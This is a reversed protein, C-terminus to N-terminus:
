RIGRPTGGVATAAARGGPDDFFELVREWEQEGLKLPPMVAQHRSARPNAIWQKLNSPMWPENVKFVGPYNEGLLGSLNPGVAGVGLGGQLLTLMRHCGGCVKAFANDDKAAKEFHVVLPTEGARPPAKASSAFLANVIETAAVESFAFQPMFLAPSQVAALVEDPRAGPLLRDLNTALGNGRGGTVHCRRCGALDVLKQGRAVVPSGPLAFHSYRSAVLDRHAVELRHSRPDGRHCSVCTGAAEYHVPHCEQCSAAPLAACPTLLALLVSLAHRLGL